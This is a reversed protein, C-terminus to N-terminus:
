AFWYGAGSATAVLNGSVYGNALGTSKDADFTGSYAPTMAYATLTATGLLLDQGADYSGNGNSDAYGSFASTTYTEESTGGGVVGFYTNYKTNNSIIQGTVVDRGDWTWTGRVTNSTSGGGGSAKGAKVSTDGIEVSDSQGLRNRMKKDSFVQISFSETGETKKDVGLTHAITAVGNADVKVSGKVGGASFDKKNLSRGSVKFYLTAGPAFDTEISTTLGDGENVQSTSPYIRFIRM